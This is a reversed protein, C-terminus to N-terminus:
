RPDGVEMYLPGSDQLMLLYIVGMKFDNTIRAIQSARMPTIQECSLEQLM